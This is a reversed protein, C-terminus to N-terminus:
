THAAPAQADLVAAITQELTRLSFPKRLQAAVRVRAGPGRLVPDLDGTIVIVPADPRHRVLEAVLAGGPAAGLNWDVLALDWAEGAELLRRAEADSEAVIPQHERLELYEAIVARVDPEDDVVLIRLSFPSM